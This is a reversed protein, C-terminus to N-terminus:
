LTIHAHTYTRALTHHRFATAALIRVVAAVASSSEGPEYKVPAIDVVALGEVLAPYQTAFAM